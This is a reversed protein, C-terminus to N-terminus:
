IHYLHAPYYSILNVLSHDLRSVVQTKQAGGVGRKWESIAILKMGSLQIVLLLIDVNITCDITEYVNNYFPWYIFQANWSNCQQPFYILKLSKTCLLKYSYGLKTEHGYLKAGYGRKLIKISNYWRKKKKQQHKKKWRRRGWQVHLKWGLRWGRRM